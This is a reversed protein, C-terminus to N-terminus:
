VEEPADTTLPESHRINADGHPNETVTLVAHHGNEPVSVSVHHTALSGNQISLTVDHTMGDDSQNIEIDVISRGVGLSLTDSFGAEYELLATQQREIRIIDAGKPFDVHAYVNQKALPSALTALENWDAYPLTAGADRVAELFMLLPDDFLQGTEDLPELDIRHRLVGRPANGRFLQTEIYFSNHTM